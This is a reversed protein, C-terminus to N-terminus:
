KTQGGSTGEDSAAKVRGYLEKVAAAQRSVKKAFWLTEISKDTAVRTENELGTWRMYLGKNTACLLTGDAYARVQYCQLKDDWFFSKDQLDWTVWRGADRVMVKNGAQVYLTDGLCTIASPSIEWRGPQPAVGYTAESLAQPTLWTEDVPTMVAENGDPTRVSFLNAGGSATLAFAWLAFDPPQPQVAMSLITHKGPVDWTRWTGWRWTDPTWAGPIQENATGAADDFACVSFKSGNSHVCVV